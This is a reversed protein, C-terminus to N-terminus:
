IGGIYDSLEQLFEKKRGRSIPLTDGAVVVLNGKVAYVHRLNVLTGSNCKSFHMTSLMEEATKLSGRARIEGENTHFILRHNNVEVWFIGTSFFRKIGDNTVLTVDRERNQETYKLIKRMSGCLTEYNLPKVIYDLANVSYGKVAYGAANTVFVIAVQEDLGRLRRATELGDLGPMEIDLFIAEFDAHYNELLQQGDSFPYLEMKQMNEKEYQHLLQILQRRSDGDDEVVAIRLTELM